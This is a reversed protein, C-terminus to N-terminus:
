IHMHLFKLMENITLMEVFQHGEFHDKDWTARSGLHLQFVVKIDPLGELTGVPVSFLPYARFKNPVPSGCCSCFQIKYGSERSYSSVKDEGCSWVFGSELAILTTTFASGTAKRCLSCHCQYALLADTSFKFEVAGCLCRGQTLSM